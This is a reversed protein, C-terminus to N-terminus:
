PLKDLEQLALAANSTKALIKMTAREIVYTTERPGYTKRLLFATAPDDGGVTFPVKMLGVWSDVDSKKAPVSPTQGEVLLNAFAAKEHYQPLKSVVL